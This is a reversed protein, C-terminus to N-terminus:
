RFVGAGRAAGLGLPVRRALQQHAREAAGCSREGDVVAARQDLVIQDGRQPLNGVGIAAPQILLARDLALAAFRHRHEVRRPDALVAVEAARRRQEVVRFDARRDAGLSHKGELHVLPFHALLDPSPEPRLPQRRVVQLPAREDVADVADIDRVPGEVCVDDARPLRLRPVVVVRGFRVTVVLSTRLAPLLALHAPLWGGAFDSMEKVVLRYGSRM